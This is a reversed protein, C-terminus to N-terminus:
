VRGGPKRPMPRGQSLQSHLRFAIVLHCKPIILFTGRQPIPSGIYLEYSGRKPYFPVQIYALKPAKLTGGLIVICPINHGSSVARIAKSGTRICSARRGLPERVKPFGSAVRLKLDLATHWSTLLGDKAEPHM